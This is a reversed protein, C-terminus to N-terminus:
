EHKRRKTSQNNIMYIIEISTRTETQMTTSKEVKVILKHVPISLRDTYLFQYTSSSMTYYLMYMLMTYSRPPIVKRKLSRLPLMKFKPTCIYTLSKVSVYTSINSRILCQESTCKNMSIIHKSKHYM